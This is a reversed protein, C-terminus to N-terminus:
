RRRSSWGRERRRACGAHKNPRSLGTHLNPKRDPLAVTHPHRCAALHSDRDPWDSDCHRDTAFHDHAHPDPEAHDDTNPHTDPLAAGAAYVDAGDPSVEVVDAGDLGDVVETTGIGDMERELFGLLGTALNRGFVALSDDDRSAVYVRAGDASVAVGRAGDLGTTGKKLAEIFELEGSAADRAFAAVAENVYGTRYGLSADRAMVYLHREDPSIAM